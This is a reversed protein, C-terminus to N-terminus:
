PITYLYPLVRGTIECEDCWDLLVDIWCWSEVELEM